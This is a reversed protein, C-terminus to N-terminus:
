KAQMANLCNVHEIYRRRTMGGCLTGCDPCQTLYRILTEDRQGEERQIECEYKAEKFETHCKDCIFYLMIDEPNRRIIEM